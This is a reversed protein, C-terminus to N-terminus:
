RAPGPAAARAGSSARRVPRAARLPETVGRGRRLVEPAATLTVVLFEGLRSRLDDVITRGIGKRQHEPNVVVDVITAYYRGGDITRGFGVLEAGEYAFAKFTIRESVRAWSVGSDDHQIRM